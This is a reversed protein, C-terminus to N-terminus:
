HLFEDSDDEKKYRRRPRQKIPPIYISEVDGMNEAEERNAQIAKRFSEYPAIYKPIFQGIGYNVDVIHGEYEVAYQMIKRIGDCNMHQKEVLIKISKVMQPWNVYESGGWLDRICDRLKDYGPYLEKKNIQKEALFQQYCEESCFSKTKYQETKYKQGRAIEKGCIVCPM